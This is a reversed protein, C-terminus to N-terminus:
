PECVLGRYACCANWGPWAKGSTSRPRPKTRRPLPCGACRPTRTRPGRRTRPGPPWSTACIRTSTPLSARARPSTSSSWTGSNSTRGHAGPRGARDGRGSGPTRHGAPREGGPRRARGGTALGAAAPALASWGPPESTARPRLRVGRCARWSRPTPRPGYGASNPHSMVDGLDRVRWCCQGAAVVRDDPARVRDQGRRDALGIEEAAERCPAPWRTARGRTATGAWRCGPRSASTGACCYAALKPICSSRPRPSTCRSSVGGRTM